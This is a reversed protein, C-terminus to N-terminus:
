FSHHPHYRLLNRVMGRLRLLKKSGPLVLLKNTGRKRPIKLRERLKNSSVFVPKIVKDKPKGTMVVIRFLDNLFGKKFGVMMELFKPPISAKSGPDILNGFIKADITIVLAQPILLPFGM